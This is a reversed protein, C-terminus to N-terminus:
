AAVEHREALTHTPMVQARIRRNEAILSSIREDRARIVKADDAHRQMAVSLMERLTFIQVRLARDTAIMERLMARDVTVAEVDIM